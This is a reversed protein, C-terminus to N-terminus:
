SPGLYSSVVTPCRIQLNRALRNVSSLNPPVSPLNSAQQAFFQERGIRDLANMMRREMRVMRVRSSTRCAITM